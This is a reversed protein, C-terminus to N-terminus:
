ESDLIVEVVKGAPANLHGWAGNKQARVEVLQGNGAHAPLLFNGKRDTVAVDPYGAVSVSAGEVAVMNGNVVVGRIKASTDPTLPIAVTPYYDNSLALTSNGQLFEDKAAASFAIRGDFPRNEPTVDLRWGGEFIQLPGPLSSKLQAYYVPSGDPRHLEVQVHYVGRAQLLHCVYLPAFGFALIVAAVISGPIPRRARLSVAVLVAAFLVAFIAILEPHPTHNALKLVQEPM